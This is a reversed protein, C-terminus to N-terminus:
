DKKGGFPLVFGGKKKQDTAAIKAMMAVSAAATAQARYHDLAENLLMKATARNACNQLDYIGLSGDRLDQVVVIASHYPQLVVEEGNGVVIKKLEPTPAAQEAQDAPPVPTVNEQQTEDNM